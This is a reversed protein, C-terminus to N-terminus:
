HSLADGVLVLSNAIDLTASCIALSFVFFGRWGMDTVLFVKLYDSKTRWIELGSYIQLTIWTMERWKGDGRGWM